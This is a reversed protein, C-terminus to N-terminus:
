YVFVLALVESDVHFVKGPDLVSSGSHGSTCSKGDGPFRDQPFGLGGAQLKNDGSCGSNNM